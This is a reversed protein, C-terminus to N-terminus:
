QKGVINTNRTELTQMILNTLHDYLSVPHKVGVKSTLFSKALTFESDEPLFQNQIPPQKPQPPASVTTEAVVEAAIPEEVASTATVEPVPTPAPQELPQETDAM